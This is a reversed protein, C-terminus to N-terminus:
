GDAALTWLVAHLAGSTTAAVGVVHGRDDLGAPDSEAGGLTGLDTIRGARWVVAHYSSGRVPVSTGVIWGRADVAVVEAPGRSLTALAGIRGNRWSVPRPLGNASRSSGVVLGGANAAVAASSPYSPGLTGLDTMRGRQWLFAHGQQGAQTVTSTFSTGVVAGAGTIDVAGSAVYRPGLTGLDRMRGSQWLFAHTGAPKATLSTGIVQGRDNIGSAGSDRGGLTGLDTLRGAQWLFAHRTRGNTGVVQGRANIASANGVFGLDTITWHPTRAPARTPSSGSAAVAPSVGFAALVVLVVSSRVSFM